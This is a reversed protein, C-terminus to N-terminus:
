YQVKSHLEDMAKYFENNQDKTGVTIRLCGESGKKNGFSRVVVGKGLLYHYLKDANKFHVLFFNADSPFVEVVENMALLNKYLKDKQQKIEFIMNEREDKNHILNVAEEVTNTSINYPMRIRNLYELTEPDGIIKGLRIGAAGIAKSFTQTVILNNYHNILPVFSAQSSFEIYAEDIIVIGKFSECLHHIFNTSLSYGTPNNPSCLFILKTNEGIQDLFGEEDLSFDANLPFSRYGVDNIDAVVKFMGFGPHVTLLHDKGPNCFARVIVDIGEDSGNTLLLQDINIDLDEAIVGRLESYHTDPYRNYNLVSDFPNENADLYIRAEGSFESRASSYAILQKINPRLLSIIDKRNM